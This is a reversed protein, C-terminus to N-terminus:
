RFVPSIPISASQRSVSSSSARSKDFNPTVAPRSYSRTNYDRTSHPSSASASEARFAGSSGVKPSTPSSKRQAMAAYSTDAHLAQVQEATPKAVPVHIADGTGSTTTHTEKVYQSMTHVTNKVVTVKAHSEQHVDEHTATAAASKHQVAAEDVDAAKDATVQDRGRKAQEARRRIYDELENLEIRGDQAM